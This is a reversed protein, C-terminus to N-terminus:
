NEDKSTNIAKPQDQSFQLEYDAAGPKARGMRKKNEHWAAFVCFELRMARGHVRQQPLANGWRQQSNKGSYGWGNLTRGCYSCLLAFILM